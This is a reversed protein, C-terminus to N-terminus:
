FELFHPSVHGGGGGRDKKNGNRSPWNSCLTTSHLLTIGPFRRIVDWGISRKPFLSYYKKLSSGLRPIGYYCSRARKFNVELSFRDFQRIEAHCMVRFHVGSNCNNLESILLNILKMIFHDRRLEWTVGCQTLTISIKMVTIVHKMRFSIPYDRQLHNYNNFYCLSIEIPTGSQTWTLFFISYVFFLNIFMMLWATEWYHIHQWRLKTSYIQSFTTTFSTWNTLILLQFTLRKLAVREPVISSFDGSPSPIRAGLVM